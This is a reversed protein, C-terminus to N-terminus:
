NRLSTLQRNLERALIEMDTEDEFSAKEVNLLNGRIEVGGGRWQQQAQAPSIPRASLVAILRQL